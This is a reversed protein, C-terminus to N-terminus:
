GREDARPHAHGGSMRQATGRFMWLVGLLAAFAVLAIAGFMYPSMPLERGHEEAAAFLNALSSSM